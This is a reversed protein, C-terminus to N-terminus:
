VTQDEDDWFLCKVYTKFLQAVCWMVSKQQFPKFIQGFMKTKWQMKGYGHMPIEQDKSEIKTQRM